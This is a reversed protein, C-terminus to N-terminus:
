EGTKWTGHFSHPIVSPLGLKCVPEENLHQSNFIWVESSNTNGDYVVTLVWGQDSNQIDQTHIPESPYLNEGLNAETLTGTQHDFGAINNLIEGETDTGERFISMYSYRSFKGVNKAPVSPFECTRNLLTEIGSVKGTQPNIQVRTLTTKTVTQTEGTAVQRLYENTQFDAYKALDVIVTGRDDVYGNGFHWQFWPETEGRSVVSLTERDIVIIQTGQEPQWTLSDSYTSTGFLVPWINLRVAPAFFVLYQGALVFDHIVPFGALTFKAQQLIKGTFDSKYIHLIANPGPTMGFNFIEGTKYDVKPHASYPQGKALGGLNNLGKTELTALDLAYPNDGEWLALLKDPLALVSTNAAHKVPKRWQNWISGPATMGYNGYLLKGAATEEQYGATQVYRYVGTAGADTFHVALIAGDGDFWHGVSVGGRELRGPGNRYLTGRLGDPIKGAIVPLQTAPFETAPQSIAKAWTKKTSKKDITQM